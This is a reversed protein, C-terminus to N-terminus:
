KVVKLSPRKGSSKNSSKKSNPKTSNPKKPSRSDPPTDDFEELEFSLGENNESAFLTLVAGMPAYVSFPKGSFRASFSIGEPDILLEQAATPSINLVIKGDDVYQHPVLVQPNDAFIVVHPTGDNDLIWDYVARLLYSKNSTFQM